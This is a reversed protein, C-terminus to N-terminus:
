FSMVGACSMIAQNQEVRDVKFNMLHFDPIAVIPHSLSFTMGFNKKRYDQKLIHVVTHKSHPDCDCIRFFPGM